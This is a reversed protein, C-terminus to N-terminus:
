ESQGEWVRVSPYLWHVADVSIREQHPFVTTHEGWNGRSWKTDCRATAFVRVSGGRMSM